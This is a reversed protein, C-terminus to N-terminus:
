LGTLGPRPPPSSAARTADSVPLSTEVAADVSRAVNEPSTQEALLLVLRTLLGAHDSRPVRDLGESVVQWAAELATEPPAPTASAGSSAKPGTGAPTPSTGNRVHVALQRLPEDDRLRCLLLGDPRLVLLEGPEVGLAAALDGDRDDLETVGTIPTGTAASRNVLVAHM